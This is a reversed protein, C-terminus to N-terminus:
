QTAGAALLIKEVAAHGGRRAMSLPTRWEGGRERGNYFEAWVRANVNAGRAILLRVAEVQGSESAHILPNEDGPVVKEISAGRDLLLKIVDVQGAGSAMILANGDGPVGEDINAGRELLLQVANLYGGKAAAILANGDGEVGRNVDAGANILMEMAELNGSRSAAILPTGDGRIAANAKAGRDLLSRMRQLDSKEAAKYLAVDLPDAEDESQAVDPVAASMVKFPAIALMTAIAMVVIAFSGLRTLPTRRRSEDLISEVRLGLNSRTAMALAPVSRGMLRKALSVLQEAYTMAEGQTRIVADDCAREAELRLRRFLMWVFPHPWYLACALRSFVQTTWDGRSIHELEHRIARLLEAESWGNTEAPLLIVPHGVGFTIPVALEPSIAVEIGRSMGESQAMENAIRTGNVSVDARHRLRRVRIISVLLSGAFFIVGGLYIRYALELARERTRSLSPTLTQPNVEAGEGTVESRSTGGEGARTPSPATVTVVQEPILAVALPLFLLVGFTTAVLLHRVSASATRAIRVAILIVLMAVTAKLAISAFSSESAALLAQTM